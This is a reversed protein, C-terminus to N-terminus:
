FKQARSFNEILHQIAQTEIIYIFCKKRLKKYFNTKIHWFEGCKFFIYHKISNLYYKDKLEFNEANIVNKM